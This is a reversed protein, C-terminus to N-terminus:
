DSKMKTSTDNISQEPKKTAKITVKVGEKQSIIKSLQDYFAQVNLTNM